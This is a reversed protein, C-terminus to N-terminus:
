SAGVMSPTESGHSVTVGTSSTLVDAQARRLCARMGKALVRVHPELVMSDHDGTVERVELRPVFPKWHNCHDQFERQENIARGSWLRHTANLPPRFLVVNGDYPQTVYNDHAEVFAARIEESRFEAPTLESESNGQQQRQWERRNQSWESFYGFGRRRWRNWHITLKDVRTLTPREVAPTDLMIVIGVQEGLTVLQQAMEYAVIGGGSFGGLFYPGDGQVERIAALYDHAMEDFRRHPEDDGFLGRAQIAYVPQDNGLHTGLHRLNLVNGFMGAVLFFPPRTAGEVTNLPILYRSHASSPRKSPKATDMDEGIEERLAAACKAITSAQFLFSIPYEVGYVKKIRAFLRAALLSHGGLEFFDDHIGVQDVGLLDQWIETLTKELPDTPAEYDSNLKPRTFKVSSENTAALLAENKKLLVDLAVPSVVVRPPASSSLVREFVRTGENPHIGAEYTELFFQEGSSLQKEDEGLTPTATFASQEMRRVTFQEIEVLVNGNSDALVVDFKAVDQHAENGAASRVYSIIRQTLPRHVRVREYALPVYLHDAEYGELLPLGFGTAMDLLAPHLGYHELDKEYEAPLELVAMAEKQGYRLERFLDWRPGFRLLEAQRTTLPQGSSAEKVYSCRAAIADIPLSPPTTGCTTVEGQAHLKWADDGVGQGADSKVEFRFGDGDPTLLVRMEREEEDDVHFPALFSVDRLECTPADLVGKWAAQAIELYATGPVVARGNRLRHEDLIWHKKPSLLTAYLADRSGDVLREDLLPHSGRQHVFHGESKQAGSLQYSIRAGMGVEQWVGWGIAMTHSDPVLLRRREAFANLFANASVYDVQGAPGLVTSISSCVVFFDLGSDRTLEDLVITGHVKPTLVRDIAEPSKTQIAGDGITGAAHIVGHLQGFRGTATDIAQQMDQLDAVDGTVIAIEAGVAKMERLRRIKQSTPDRDTHADLWADWTAEEPFSSRGVLVLRAQFRTALDEAITLGIGGLGGTILYVGQQRLRSEETADTLKVPEFQQTWWNGGRLAVCTTGQQRRLNDVLQGALEDVEAVADVDVDISHCQLNPYERPIIKVPGLLTAKDPYHLPQGHVSQMGNSVVSIAVDHDSLIDGWVQALFVLSYMGREQNRHFFSSGPRSTEDHTLTWLHVIRSPIRDLELLQEALQQYHDLGQEPNMAFEGDGFAFFADAERVTSVVHGQGRLDEAMAQGVGGSDLFILWSPSADSVTEASSDAPKWVPQYLWDEVDSRKEIVLDAAPDAVRETPEIWYKERQFRYTPLALRQRHENRWLRDLEIPLGAAWLRGLVTLFYATDSVEEKPHRLSSLVCQKADVNGHQKVLSSLMKGPGVELFVRGPETLLTEVGQSFNVTHRLHSVWYDPDTAQEDTIWTGSRNSIFPIKPPALSISKLYNRFEDLIPELLRSHAAINIRVRQAEIEQEALRETLEDLVSNAGSIVCLEPSNVTALDAGDILLPEIEEVPMPVTIMGGEPVREFLAGRLVVLGLADEFSLVGALCAATNEGMSHGILASPQIGWEMWLQALAYEVIFIAPLQVSPRELERAVEDRREETAFILERIDYGVRGALQDAGRDLHDRFVPESEYLDAAMRHYQAGGGPLMFVVSSDAANAHHTFVRRPDRSELLAIAEAHDRCAVVRRQAFAHRGAHLTYAVDALHQDQHDRLHNALAVCADDLSERNRASLTLLQFPRSSRSTSPSLPAEELVVHANTGGVGLSNVGARRPSSGRPWARLAANVFFPSNEFDISPNPAEFNLSPPIQEHYLALSANILSAVGAATDLHGINTKVSGIACYDTKETTQRYAQTLASIEIPDGIKTGTGHAAVYSVTDAEVDAVELAEAAAAAQRDVSPALYSVKSAGDNNIASGKIVAYIRDGDDLADQLRRLVVAGAGSGFITGESRHDFARCHGDPALIEGRQYLYGVRHPLSITVGGALTMDCEGNLLSQCATHVAVLSTSCATQVNVSPGKLDFCYSVRTALFDKDNGTHRLLFLGVSNMLEPNNSLHFMLYSGLGCGAFVGISGDFSAPPHAADELAEWCCELFHRHQPDMIAAEKPSLGFFEADFLEMNDIPMGSRVYNPNDLVSAPVGEAELEERTYSRASEVGDRLNAWFEAVNNAGPFRLGMGVIAIDTDVPQEDM